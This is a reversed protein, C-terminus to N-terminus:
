RDNRKNNKKKKPGDDSYVGLQALLINLWIISLVLVILEFVPTPIM